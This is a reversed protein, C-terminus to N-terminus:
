FFEIVYAFGDGGRGGIGAASGTGNIADGGGGGGGCKGGMGGNGAVTTTLASGGGGAGSGCTTNTTQNNGDGGNVNAAGAAGGALVGNQSLGFQGGGAAGANTAGAGSLGGGAGGGPGGGIAFSGASAVGATSSGGGGGAGIDMTPAGATPAAGSGGAGAGVGLSGATTGSGNGGATYGSGGGGGAGTAALQGGAGGGGRLAQFLNGTVGFITSTGSTGNGGATTIATPPLGGNGGIGVVINLTGVQAVTFNQCKPTEGGGGGAGGSAATAALSLAGSGAGGGPGGLCVTISQAGTTPTYTQNIAGYTLQFTAGSGASLGGGPTWTINQPNVLSTCVGATTISNVTTVNGGANTTVNLVPPTTCTGGSAWTLTGTLANGYGTGTATCGQVVCFPTAATVQAKVTYDIRITAHAPLPNVGGGGSAISTNPNQIGDALAPGALCLAFALALLKNSILM